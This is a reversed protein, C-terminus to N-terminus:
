ALTDQQRRSKSYLTSIHAYTVTSSYRQSTGNKHCAHSSLSTILFLYLLKVRGLSSRTTDYSVRCAFLVRKKSLRKPTKLKAFNACRMKM